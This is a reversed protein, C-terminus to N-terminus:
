LRGVRYQRGAVAVATATMLLELLFSPHLIFNLWWPQFHAPVQWLYFKELSWPALWAIGGVVSDLLVHLMGGAAFIALLLFTNKHFLRWCLWAVLWLLAWSLPYHTFYDHHNHLRGDMLFFHFLDMDPAIAGSMSMMLLVRTSINKTLQRGFVRAMLYGAPLHAIFM